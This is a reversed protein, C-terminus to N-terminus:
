ELMDRIIAVFILRVSVSFFYCVNKGVSTCNTPFVYLQVIEKKKCYIFNYM